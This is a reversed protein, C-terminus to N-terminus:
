QFADLEKLTSQTHTHTYCAIYNYVWVCIYYAYVTHTHTHTYNKYVPNLAEFAQVSVNVVYYETKLCQTTVSPSQGPFYCLMIM